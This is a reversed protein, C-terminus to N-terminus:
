IKFISYVKIFIGGIIVVMCGIAIWMWINRSHATTALQTKVVILSDGKVRYQGQVASIARNDALTDHITIFTPITVQRGALTVTKIVTDKVHTIVTSGPTIVTDRKGQKIVTDSKAVGKFCPDLLNALRSMEAPYQIAYGDFKKVDQAQKYAASCGTLFLTLLLLRRM